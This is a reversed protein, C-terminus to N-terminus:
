ESTALPQYDTVMVNIAAMIAMGILGGEAGGSDKVVKETAQWLVMGTRKDRLEYDMEVVVTSSLLIYKSSWDKITAYLAADAAM